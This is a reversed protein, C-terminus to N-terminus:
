MHLLYPKHFCSIVEEASSIQLEFYLLKSRIKDLKLESSDLLEIVTVIPEYRKLLDCLLYFVSEEEHLTGGSLKFNEVTKKFEVLDEKLQYKGDFKMSVINKKLHMKNLTSKRRHIKHLTNWMEKATNKNKM